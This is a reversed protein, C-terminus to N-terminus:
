RPEREATATFMPYKWRTHEHGQKHYTITASPFGVIKLMEAILDPTFQWWTGDYKPHEHRPMFVACNCKTVRGLASLLKGVIYHRISHTAICDTVIITHKTHKAGMQLALFPDRLHLLISGFLSVDFMGIDEPIKYIDGYVVKSKSQFAKHAFWFGNNLKRIHNSDEARAEETQNKPFAKDWCGSPSLEYGTVDAGMREMHFTLGGSAPGFELVSKGQINTHGLYDDEGGRLDWEGKVYGYGPIDLSHYFYCDELAKEEKPKMRQRGGAM